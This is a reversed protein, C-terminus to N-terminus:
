ERIEGAGQGGKTVFFGPERGVDGVLEASLAEKVAELASAQVLCVISGGFGGGTMRAGLVGDQQLAKDVLLDLERCSVEYDHQLSRHSEVLLRGIASFQKEQLLTVTQTVRENETVVHRARRVLPEPLVQHHAEFDHRSVDRLARIHPLPAQLLQVATECEERRTNYASSALSHKVRSDAVLIRLSPDELPVDRVELSRCDILLGFGRRARASALQDMIGCRTGVWQHEAKQGALALQVLDVSLGALSLLAFGVGVELAASSSLGAGTPLDSALVLEAGCIEHGAQLLAQAMGEVYDAWIGRRPKGPARLDFDIEAREQGQHSVVHIRSDNRSAGLITVGLDLAMPLVFGDNYDTHEGIFNVRGPAFFARPQGFGSPFLPRLESPHIM